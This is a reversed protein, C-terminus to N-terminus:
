SAIFKFMQIQEETLGEDDGEDDAGGTLVVNGMIIDVAGFVSQFIKTAVNNVPLGDLKGEENVWLTLNANLGVAEIWGGVAGQLVKLSGESSDLDLVETNGDVGIVLANRM